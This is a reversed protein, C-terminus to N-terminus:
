VPLTCIILLLLSIVWVLCIWKLLDTAKNVFSQKIRYINSLEMVDHAYEHLIKEPTVTTLARLYKDEDSQFQDLVSLPFLMEPATTKARLLGPRATYVRVATYIIIFAIVLYLLCFAIAAYRTTVQWGVLSATFARDAFTGLAATLIGIAMIVYGVKQDMFGILTQIHSFCRQVFDLRYKLAEERSRPEQKERPM